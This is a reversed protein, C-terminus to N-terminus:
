AGTGSGHRRSGVIARHCLEVVQGKRYQLEVCSGRIRAAVQGVLQGARLHGRWAMRDVTLNVAFQHLDAEAAAARKGITGVAIVAAGAHRHADDGGAELGAARLTAGVGTVIRQFSMMFDDTDALNADVYEVGLVERRVQLGRDFLDNETM